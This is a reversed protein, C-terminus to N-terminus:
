KGHIKAAENMAYIRFRAAQRKVRGDGDKYGGEPRPVEGPAEPGTFYETESNGVRAIGLCPHIVYRVIPDKDPMIKVM